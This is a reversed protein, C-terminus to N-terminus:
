GRPFQLVDFDFHLISQFTTHPWCYRRAQRARYLWNKTIHLISSAQVHLLTQGLFLAKKNHHHLTLSAQVILLTPGLLLPSNDTLDPSLTNTSQRQILRDSRNTYLSCTLNDYLISSPRLLYGLDFDDALAYPSIHNSLAILSFYPTIHNPRITVTASAVVASLAPPACTLFTDQDVISSEATSITSNEAYDGLSTLM